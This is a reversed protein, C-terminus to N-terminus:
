FRFLRGLGGCQLVFRYLWRMRWVSCTGNGTRSPPSHSASGGEGPPTEYNPLGSACIPQHPYDTRHNHHKNRSYILRYTQTQTTQKLKHILANTVLIQQNGYTSVRINGPILWSCYTSKTRLSLQKNSCDSSTMQNNYTIREGNETGYNDSDLIM